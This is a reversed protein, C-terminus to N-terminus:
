GDLELATENMLVALLNLITPLDDGVAGYLSVLADDYDDNAAVATVELEARFVFLGADKSSLRFTGPVLTASYESVEVDDLSLDIEFVQGLDMISRWFALLYQAGVEWCAWQVTVRDSNGEFNARTYGPGGELEIRLAGAGYEATYGSQIPSLTLKTM